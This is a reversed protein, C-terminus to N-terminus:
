WDACIFLEYDPNKEQFFREAYAVFNEAEADGVAEKKMQPLVFKKFSDLLAKDLHIYAGTSTKSKRSHIRCGIASAGDKM